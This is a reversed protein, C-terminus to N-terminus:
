AYYQGSWSPNAAGWGYVPDNPDLARHERSPSGLLGDGSCNVGSTIDRARREINMNPLYLCPSRAGGQWFIVCPQWPFFLLANPFASSSSFSSPSQYHHSTQCNLVPRHCLTQSGPILVSLHDPHWVTKGRLRATYSLCRWTIVRRESRPM